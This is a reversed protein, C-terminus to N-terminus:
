SRPIQTPSPLITPQTPRAWPKVSLVALGATELVDHVENADELIMTPDDIDLEVLLTATM